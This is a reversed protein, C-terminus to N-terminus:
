YAGVRHRSFDSLPFSRSSSPPNDPIGWDSALDEPWENFDEGM